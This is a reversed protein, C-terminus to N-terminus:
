RQRAAQKGEDPNGFTPLLGMTAPRQRDDPGSSSAPGFASLTSVVTACM